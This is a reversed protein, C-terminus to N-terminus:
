VHDEDGADEDGADLQTLRVCVNCREGLCKQEHQIPVIINM